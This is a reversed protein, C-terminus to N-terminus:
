DIGGVLLCACDAVRWFVVVQYDAAVHTFHGDAVKVVEVSLDSAQFVGSFPTLHCAVRRVLLEECEGGVVVVEVHVRYAVFAGISEVFRERLM